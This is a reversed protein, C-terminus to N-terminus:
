EAGATTDLSLRVTELILEPPAPKQIFRQRQKLSLEHGAIEESYGSTLIVKLEPKRAQLKTALERGSMGEPMVIDTLLLDFAGGANEWIRMADPGHVAEMVKYGARQLIIRTLMRVSPDDEVLLIRESGGLPKDAEFTVPTHTPMNEEARLFVRFISGQGATSEVTIAGGHQKVIGFVTALGLGTGKGSKKTTYFPEFIHPLVEPAIGEGTDIVQLLVHEGASAGPFSSAEKETLYRRGTEIFLGGGNPMADRANVVLNLLVQDLMGSDARTFLPKPSLTLQMSVDEGLIRQLMKTLNTVADNLDLLRSQMVQRSSFALLQRTLNAARKAADKIDDLMDRIDPPLGTDYNALNLQMMIAALINNFDHAVGGALQGIAEMKQSQRLQEELQRNQTIDRFTWIRGYYNGAKDRVPSSYRDLITGDLLEVEDRSIEEPHSYLYAIKEIFKAPEKTLGTVYRVQASDDTDNAIEPPIKWLDIMHHNQLIKRGQHDVVLIGDLTSELQAEFVATKWCLEDHNSQSPLPM